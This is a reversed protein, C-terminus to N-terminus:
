SVRGEGSRGPNSDRHRFTMIALPQHLVGVFPRRSELPGVQIKLWFPEPTRQKKHVSAAGSWRRVVFEVAVLFRLMFCDGPAESLLTGRWLLCLAALRGCERVLPAQAPVACVRVFCSKRHPVDAARSTRLRALIHVCFHRFKAAPLRQAVACTGPVLAVLVGLHLTMVARACASRRAPLM